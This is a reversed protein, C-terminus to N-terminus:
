DTLHGRKFDAFARLLAERDPRLELELTAAATLRATTRIQEVYAVCPECLKLHAAMRAADEPELAGDLYATVLEVVERCSIGGPLIPGNM